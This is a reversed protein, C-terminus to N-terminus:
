LQKKLSHLCTYSMSRLWLGPVAAARGTQFPSRRCPAAHGGERREKKKTFVTCTLVSALWSAGVRLSCPTDGDSVGVEFLDSSLQPHQKAEMAQETRGSPDTLTAQVALQACLRCSGSGCGM